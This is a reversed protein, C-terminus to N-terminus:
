WNAGGMAGKIGQWVGAIFLVFLFLPLSVSILIVGAILLVLLKVV